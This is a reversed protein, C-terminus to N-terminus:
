LIYAKVKAHTQQNLLGFTKRVRMNSLSKIITTSTVLSKQFSTPTLRLILPQSALSKKCGLLILACDIKAHLRM